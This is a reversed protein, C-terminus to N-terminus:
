GIEAPSIVIFRDASGIWAVALLITPIALSRILLVAGLWSMISGPIMGIPLSEFPSKLRNISARDRIWASGSSAPTLMETPSLLKVAISGALLPSPDGAFPGSSLANRVIAIGRPKFVIM